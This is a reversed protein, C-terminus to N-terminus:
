TGSETKNFVPIRLCVLAQGRHGVDLIFKQQKSPVWQLHFNEKLTFEALPLYNNFLSSGRGRTTMSTKGGKEFSSVSTGSVEFVTLTTLSYVQLRTHINDANANEKLLFQIIV